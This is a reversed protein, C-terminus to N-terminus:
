PNPTPIITGAPYQDPLDMFQQIHHSLESPREFVVAHGTPIEVYRSDQIAGFLAQQHRVPVMQDHTCGVVLTPPEITHALETIDIRRNLDMQLDGFHDFKMANMGPALDDETQEALFPGGFACFTSYQRLATDDDLDRLTRWIDNRLLQQQDTKIWGSVLMLRDILDPRQAAVVATVVAGLSYGLLAVKRGPVTYEILEIVQNALQELQLPSSDSEGSPNSWDISIVRQKAALVPFLFGFHSATSGATGHVLVLMDDRNKDDQSDYYTMELGALEAHRPVLLEETLM